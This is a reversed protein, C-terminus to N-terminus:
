SSYDMMRNVAFADWSYNAQVKQVGFTSMEDYKKSDELLDLIKRSLDESDKEEYVAGNGDVREMATVKNSIILPLGSAMADLMSTSEERPWVGLEGAQYILPLKNFHVFPHVSCNRLAKIEEEQPGNGIFLGKINPHKEALLDIAKALVLPNKGESFRGTYICIRDEPRFGLDTKRDVKNEHDPKFLDTDVGLPEVVVKNAPAGYYDIAIEAADPTQCYVKRVVSSIIMGGFKHKLWWDAKKWWPWDPWNKAVTFVSKLSHNASYLKFGLMVKCWFVQWTIFSEVYFVQVVDPQIEKLTKYLGRKFYQENKFTTHQLRHLTFGDIQKTEVPTIKPGLFDQYIKEYDPSNFYVQVNPAIVHVEHGLKVLSKPLCNFIYGTNESFASSVFVIKM